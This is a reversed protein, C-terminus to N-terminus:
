LGNKGSLVGGKLISGVTRQYIGLWGSCYEVKPDAEMLRNQITADDVELTLTRRGIDYSIMDGPEVILLPGKLAAEPSVYGICAGETAGSFRGDTVLAVQDALPSGALESTFPFTTVVGPGGKAGQMRIVVVDGARITGDRLGAIASDCSEFIVAPGRFSLLKEPVASQKVVAGDMALNGRLVALAGDTSIPDSLPRIVHADKIEAADIRDGITEGTVTRAERHVEKGITKMLAALGGARDFDEMLGDGNPEIGMLLPVKYSAKDFYGICDFDNLEAETAMAPVHILCNTSGGVAMCAMIANEVASQTIIDRATIGKDWLEMVTKGARYAIENMAPDRACTTSNGPMTMGLSEAVICMTNATGMMPCAGPGRCATDLIEMCEKMDIEGSQVRGVTKGVDVFTVREGNHCGAVMYGGTVIVTPINLRAAAMVYGPVIKDCSALMVMADMKYAGIQTEVENCILDRSPLIYEAGFFAVGDCLGITPLHYPTGGSEIIGREVEKALRNFHVHGNNMDSWSNIIAVQPKRIEADTKGLGRLLAYREAWAVGFPVDTRVKRKM